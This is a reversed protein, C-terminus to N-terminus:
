QKTKDGSDPSLGTAEMHTQAWSPLMNTEIGQSVFTLGLFVPNRKSPFHPKVCVIALEEDMEDGNIGKVLLPNVAYLSTTVPCKLLKDDIRDLLIQTTNTKPAEKVVELALLTYFKRMRGYCLQAKNRQESKHSCSSCVVVIALWLLRKM